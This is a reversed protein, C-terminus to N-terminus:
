NNAAAPTSRLRGVDYGKAALKIKLDAVVEPDLHSPRALIWLYRRDPSGVAAWRYDPDLELIWYDGEFPWFFSVKLKSNGSDPVVRATGQITSTRGGRQCTNVVRITGDERLTYNAKTGTCGRQFWAPFSAIEHWDGTYRALDVRPVTAPPPLTSCAALLLAPATLVALRFKM